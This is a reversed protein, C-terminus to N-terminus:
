AVSEEFLFEHVVSGRTGRRYRGRGIGWELKPETLSQWVIMGCCTNSGSHRDVADGQALLPKGRLAGVEGLREASHTCADRGDRHGLRLGEVASLPPDVWRM